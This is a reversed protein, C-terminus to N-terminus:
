SSSTRSRRLLRRPSPPSPRPRTSRGTSTWASPATKRCPDTTYLCRGGIYTTSGNTQDKFQIYLRGDEMESAELRCSRGFLSFSVYGHVFDEEMEGLVNPLKVRMPVPYPSYLSAVVYDQSPEFWRRGRFSKREPRCNDWLRVGVGHTRRIVVMRLDQYTVFSPTPSDDGNLVTPTSVLEGNVDISQGTDLTLTVSSGDFEFAGIIRPAPKPLRIDCDRSSGFTNFGKQLWFLGALALQDNKRRLNSDTEARWNELSNVYQEDLM